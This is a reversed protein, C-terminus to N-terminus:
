KGLPGAGYARVYLVCFVSGILFLFIYIFYILQLFLNFCIICKFCKQANIYLIFFHFHIILSVQVLSSSLEVSSFKVIPCWFFSM